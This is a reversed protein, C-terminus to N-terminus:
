LLSRFARDNGRELGLFEILLGLHNIGWFGRTEGESNVAEFWPAGFSGSEFAADTNTKLLEKAEAEGTKRLVEGALEESGLVEALVRGFVEPKSVPELDIWFKKCLATMYEDVKEPRVLQLACVSRM